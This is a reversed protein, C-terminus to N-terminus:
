EIFLHVPQEGLDGSLLELITRGFVPHRFDPALEALPELVFRREQMSPHPITLDPSNVILDDYLLIDIDVTRPGKPQTRQRGLEAEVHSIRALLEEASLVTEIEVAINLFWPQDLLEMPATEYIQSVRKVRVLDDTLLRVAKKLNFKRDGLNSGLSLYATPV